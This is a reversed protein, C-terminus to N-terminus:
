RCSINYRWHSSVKNSPTTIKHKLNAIQQSIDKRDDILHAMHTRGEALSVALEIDSDVWKHRHEKGGGAHNAVRKHREDHATKQKHLADKLRKNVAAVEEAKRKLVAQQKEHKQNM